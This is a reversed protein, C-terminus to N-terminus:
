KNSEEVFKNLAELAAGSDILHKAQGVGEEISKAKGAAYLAAGANMCVAGGITGPIGYSWEIGCLQNQILYNNLVFLNCGCQVSVMNNNHKINKIRKTCIVMGSFGSDKFIVNSGNGVVFYKINNKKCYKITKILESEDQPEVYYNSIGGVHMTCHKSLNEFYNLNKINELEM